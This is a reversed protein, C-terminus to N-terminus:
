FSFNLGMVLSRAMPFGGRNVYGNEPDWGIWNTFTYLNKGSLYVRATSLKLNSLLTPKFEYALSIDQIRVFNQSQYYGHGYPNNYVLSPYTNAKNEATWWEYDPFNAPRGTFNLGPDLQDNKKMWGQVANVQVSLTFGQYRFTNAVSWRYKPVSQGIITRDDPTIKGDANIDKLRVYGPKYGTPLEDGEQYIGDQVYDYLSGLSRGIFWRNAIDDDERGDQNNDSGYLSVIQNRNTSFVLTGSWEFDKKRILVPNLTLELGKNNTAGLNTLVNEFGNMIPIRRLLLLDKTNMNYAEVTGGLRGNFFDFDIAANSSITTEWKLDPNSINAVFVGTSSLGGDGYVYQNTSMRSLSAYPGVAQNGVKGHSLRLKLLNIWSFQRVFSEESAIWAIAASPFIGYKSARGFNSTGDRRATLTLLYRDNVQYNLRAMSSVGTAKSSGSTANKVAGVGLNNWTLGDNFLDSASATNEESSFQNSGYLLTLDFAHNRSIQRNYTVINELVWDFNQRNFKSASGRNNYNNRTYIPSFRYLNDWRLNPSYNIRYSLGKVFPIQAVAYFNAFLNYYREQDKDILSNFMPNNVLGDTQPQPIPDSKAEDFYLTAYPSLWAADYTRAEIGTLDRYTFQSTTGIKLWNTVSTELNVRLSIRDAKDGYILGREKTVGASLYFSTRESRGSASLDYSQIPASQSIEKWPDIERNNLYNDRELDQLYSAVKAPDAEQGNQSRFDLTKQVYRAGDLLKIKHSFDQVGYYANLRITPKETKGKKTTILIVGNAARSGYIAAASADKLVEISEIDNPAIDALEGNFFVGDVIILPNNNANISRQGRILFTGSQGPRSNDLFQVGAITGRLAQAINTNPLTETRKIDVKEVSGTVNRRSQQGYGVVVVENLSQQSAQLSVTVTSRNGIPVEKSEYGVFSFILVADATQITIQYDGNADTTTGRTTGKVVVSVGPLGESNDVATVKGRIIQDQPQTVLASYRTAFAQQWNMLLLGLLVLGVRSSTITIRM